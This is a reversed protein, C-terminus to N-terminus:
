AGIALSEFVGGANVTIISPGITNVNYDAMGIASGAVQAQAIGSVSTATATVDMLAEALVNGRVSLSNGTGPTGRLGTATQFSAAVAPGSTSSATDSTQTIASGTIQSVGALQGGVLNLNSVGVTDGLSSAQAPGTLATATTDGTTVAQGDINGTTNGATFTDGTTSSMGSSTTDVLATAGTDGTADVAYDELLSWGRISGTDGLLISSDFSEIGQSSLEASAFAPSGDTSTASSTADTLTTVVDVSGDREIQIVNVDLDVGGADLLLTAIPGGAGTAEASGSLDATVLLGDASNGVGGQLFIDSDDVAQLEMASLATATGNGNTTTAVADADGNVDVVLSGQDVGGGAINITSDIIGGVFAPSVNVPAAPNIPGPLNATTNEYGVYAVVNDNISTATASLDSTAAVTFDEAAGGRQLGGLATLSSEEFGIVESDYGSEAYTLSGGQDSQATANAVLTANSNIGQLESLTNLTSNTTGFINDERATIATPDSGDDFNDGIATANQISTASIGLSLSSDANVDMALGIVEDNDIQAWTFGAPGNQGSSTALAVNSAFANADVTGGGNFDILSGSPNGDLTRQDVIGGILNSDVVATVNGTNDNSAVASSLIDSNGQVISLGPGTQILLDTTYTPNVPDTPNGADANYIGAALDLESTATAAGSTSSANSIVDFLVSSDVEGSSNFDIALTDGLPDLTVLDNYIGVVETSPFLSGADAVAGGTTSAATAGIGGILLADVQSEPTNGPVSNVAGGDIEIGTNKIGFFGDSADAQATAGDTGAATADAIAQMAVDVVGPATGALKIDASPAGLAGDSNIVVDQNIIGGTPGFFNALAQSSGLTQSLLPSASRTATAQVLTDGTVRITGGRSSRISPAALGLVPNSFVIGVNATTASDASNFTVNNESYATATVRNQTGAITGLNVNLTFPATTNNFRVNSQGVIPTRTFAFAM